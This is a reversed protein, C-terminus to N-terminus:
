LLASEFALQLGWATEICGHDAIGGSAGEHLFAKLPEKLRAWWVGSILRYNSVLISLGRHEKPTRGKGKRLMLIPVQYYTQTHIM